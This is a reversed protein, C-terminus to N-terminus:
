GVGIIDEIHRAVTAMDAMGDVQRLIGKGRYYPLIPATRDRYTALRVRVTEATDDPRRV